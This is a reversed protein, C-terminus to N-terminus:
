QEPPLTAEIQSKRQYKKKKLKNLQLEITYYSNYSDKILENESKEAEKNELNIMKVYNIDKLDIRVQYEILDYQLYNYEWRVPCYDNEPCKLPDFMIIQENLTFM